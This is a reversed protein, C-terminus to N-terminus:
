LRIRFARAKGEHGAGVVLIADKRPSVDVGYLHGVSPLDFTCYADGLWLVAVGVRGPSMFGNSMATVFRGDGLMAVDRFHYAQSFPQPLPKWQGASDRTLALEYYGYALTTTADGTIGILEDFGALNLEIRWDTGDYHRIHKMPESVGGGDTKEYAWLRDPAAAYVSDAEWRYHDVSAALAGGALLTMLGSQGGFWMSGDYGRSVWRLNAPTALLGAFTGDLALRTARGGSVVFATDAGDWAMSVPRGTLRRDEPITTVQDGDIRAVVTRSGSSPGIFLASDVGTYVADVLGRSTGPIDLAEVTARECPTQAGGASLALSLAPAGGTVRAQWIAWGVTEYPVADPGESTVLARAVTATQPALRVSADGLSAELRSVVADAPEGTLSPYAATLDSLAYAFVWVEMEFERDLRLRFADDKALVRATDGGDSLVVVVRVDADTFPETAVFARDACQTLVLLLGLYAGASRPM